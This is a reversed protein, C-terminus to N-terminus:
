LQVINVGKSGASNRKLLYLKGMNALDKCSWLEGTPQTLSSDLGDFSEVLRTTKL